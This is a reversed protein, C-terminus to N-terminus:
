NLHLRTLFLNKQTRSVPLSSGDCLIVQGGDGKIYKEIKNLNVLHSNHIRCFDDQNLNAELEKLTKSATIKKGDTTYIHTYNSDAEMRLIRETEIIILGDNSPINIKSSKNKFYLHQILEHINENRKDIRRFVKQVAEKLETANIPKLLYDVAENKLAQIAYQEYATTFIVHYESANTKELIEFGSGDQLEIDLFILQPKEKQITNIAQPIDHVVAVIELEPCFETVLIQLAEAGHFEDDIILTKTKM